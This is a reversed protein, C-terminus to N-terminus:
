RHAAAAGGRAGGELDFGPATAAGFGDGPAGAGCRVLLSAGHDQCRLRRAADLEHAFGTVVYADDGGIDVFRSSGIFPGELEDFAQRARLGAGHGLVVGQGALGDDRGVGDDREVPAQQALWCVFLVGCAHQAGEGAARM